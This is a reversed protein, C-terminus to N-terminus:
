HSMASATRDLAARLGKALTAADDNAWFHMFFLRPEETLMHSHLADVQIDHERLARIVANVESARLVFDGTIAAKGGGTPQFNIATAVGMSPPVVDGGDRITERRPVSVQYVVGNLKGAVGLARAIAATDLDAASPPAPAAPTGIPTKSLALAGRVTQAIKEADGHAAIHMYMVRPSEMLVHNHLATQEVGGDQLSRMVPGVEDETLVLDGMVMARGAGLRKFAVWSGLALAPRVAVGAVTVALDGRPFAYRMVGGPQAAGTRGLARDVLTWDGAPPASGAQAGLSASWLCAALLPVVGTARFSTRRAIVVAQRM